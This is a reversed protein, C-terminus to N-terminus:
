TAVSQRKLFNPLVSFRALRESLFQYSAFEMNAFKSLKKINFPFFGPTIYALYIRNNVLYNDGLPSSYRDTMVALSTTCWISHERVYDVMDKVTAHKAVFM